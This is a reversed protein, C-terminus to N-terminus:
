GGIGHWGRLVELHELVKQQIAGPPGLVSLVAWVPFSPFSSGAVELSHFAMLQYHGKACAGTLNSTLASCPLVAYSM